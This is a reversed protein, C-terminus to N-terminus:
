KACFPRIHRMLEVCEPDHRYGIVEQLPKLLRCLKIMRVLCAIRDPTQALNFEVLDVVEMPKIAALTVYPGVAHYGPEFIILLELSSFHFSQGLIYPAPDYHWGELKDILKGKPHAGTFILREEQGRFACIRRVFFGYDPGLTAIDTSKNSNRISSGEPVLMSIILAMHLDWFAHYSSETSDPAPVAADLACKALSAMGDAEEVESSRFLQLLHDCRVLV